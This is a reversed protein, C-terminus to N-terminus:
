RYGEAQMEFLRAYTHGLHILEEHNGIEEIQGSKLVVIKDAMRVTSFRHSILFAIKGETLAKFRKFIEFEKEADLCNKLM